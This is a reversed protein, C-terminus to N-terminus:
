ETAIVCGVLCRFSLSGEEAETDDQDEAV